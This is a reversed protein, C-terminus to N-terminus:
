LIDFQCSLNELVSTDNTQWGFSDITKCGESEILISNTANEVDFSSGAIM